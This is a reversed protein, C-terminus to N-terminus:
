LAFAVLIKNFCTILALSYVTFKEPDKVRLSGLYVGVAVEYLVEYINMSSPYTSVGYLLASFLITRWKSVFVEQFFSLMYGRFILETLVSSILFEIIIMIVEYVFNYQLELGIRELAYIIKTLFDTPYELLALFVFCIISCILQLHVKHFHLGYKMLSEGIYFRILVIILAISISYLFIWSNSTEFWKVVWPIIRYSRGNNGFLYLELSLMCGIVLFTIWKKKLKKNM